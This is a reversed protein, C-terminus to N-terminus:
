YSNRALLDAQNNGYWDKYLEIEEIHPKKQHARIYKFIINYKLYYKRINQILDLNKIIENKTNKWNNKEWTNAWKVISNILYNSDTSIIITDQNTFSKKNTIINIATRCAELECINNTINEIHLQKGLNDPNKDDFFIGIGGKSNKKGNNSVSGDTYVIWEKM